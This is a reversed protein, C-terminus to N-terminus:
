SFTIGFTYSATFLCFGPLKGGKVWEWNEELMVRYSMLVEQAGEKLQSAFSNPGSIYFSFGGAIKGGPNISGEPYFAEWALTPPPLATSCSSLSPPPSVIEHKTRSSVKHVGLANDGLPVLTLRDDKLHECTTFGSKFDEVPILSSIM